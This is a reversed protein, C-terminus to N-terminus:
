AAAGAEAARGASTAPVLGPGFTGPVPRLVAQPLRNVKTQNCPGCALVLAAQMWTHWVSRPVLHDITAEDLGPGFVADCYWCSAGDREALRAKLLRRRRSPPKRDM